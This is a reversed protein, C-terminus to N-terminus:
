LRPSTGGPLQWCNISLPAFSFNTYKDLQFVTTDLLSHSIDGTPLLKVKGKGRGKPATVPGSFRFAYNVPVRWVHYIDWPRELTIEPV